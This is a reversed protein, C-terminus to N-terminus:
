NPSSLKESTVTLDMAQDVRVLHFSHIRVFRRRLRLLLVLLTLAHRDVPAEILECLALLQPFALQPVAGLAFSM